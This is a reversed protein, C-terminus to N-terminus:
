KSNVDDMTPILNKPAESEYRFTHSFPTMVSMAQEVSAGEALLKEIKARERWMDGLPDSDQKKIPAVVKEWDYPDADEKRVLEWYEGEQRAKDPRSATADDLIESFRPFDEDWLSIVAEPKKVAEGTKCRYVLYTKSM